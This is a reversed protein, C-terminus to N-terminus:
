DLKRLFSSRQETTMHLYNLMNNMHAIKNKSIGVWNNKYGCELCLGGLAEQWEKDLDTMETECGVCIQNTM